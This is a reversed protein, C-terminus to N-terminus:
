KPDYESSADVETSTEVSGDKKEKTVEKVDVEKEGKASKTKKKYKKTTKKTGTLPNKSVDTTQESKNEADNGFAASMPLALAASVLLTVFKM